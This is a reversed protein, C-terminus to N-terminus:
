VSEGRGFLEGEVGDMALGDCLPARFVKGDNRFSPTAWRRRGMGIGLVGEGIMFDLSSMEANADEVM